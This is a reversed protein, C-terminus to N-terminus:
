NKSLPGQWTDTPETFLESPDSNDPTRTGGMEELSPEPTPKRETLDIKSYDYDAPPPPLESSDEETSPTVAEKKKPPEPKTEESEEPKNEETTSPESSPEPTSSDEPDELSSDEDRDVDAAWVVEETSRPKINFPTVERDAFISDLVEKRKRTFEKTGEDTFTNPLM